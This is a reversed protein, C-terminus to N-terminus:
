KKNSLRRVRMAAKVELSGMMQMAAAALQYLTVMASVPNGPLGFLVSNGLKAFPFPNANSYIGFQLDL